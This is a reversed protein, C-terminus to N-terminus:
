SLVPRVPPHTQEKQPNGGRETGQSTCDEMKTARASCSMSGVAMHIIPVHLSLAFSPSVHGKRM